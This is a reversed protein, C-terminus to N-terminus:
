NSKAARVMSPLRFLPKKHNLFWAYLVPDDYVPGWVEHGQMPFVTYKVDVGCLRAADVMAQEPQIPVVPDDAGHFAWVPIGKLRCPTNVDSYGSVPAIAAFYHPYRMAFDWTGQGGRSLGTLYIRRHDIPLDREVQKLWEDLKDPNWEGDRDEQPALVIFPFDAHTAAYHWPGNTLVQYTDGGAEGSGHLVILLPMKRHPDASASAPVYQMYRFVSGDKMTVSLPTDGPKAYLAQSISVCGSLALSAAILLLSKVAKFM